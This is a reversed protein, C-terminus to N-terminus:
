SLKRGLRPSSHKVWRVTLEGVFRYDYGSARAEDRRAPEDWSDVVTAERGDVIIREPFAAVAQASSV